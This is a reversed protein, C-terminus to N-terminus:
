SVHEGDGAAASVVELEGVSFVKDIDLIILFREDQKGMGKIFRNDFQTGMRPQHRM